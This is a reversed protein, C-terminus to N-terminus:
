GGAAVTHEGDPLVTVEGLDRPPSGPIRVRYTGPALRLADGNVVGTAVVEDGELVEYPVQLSAGMAAALQSGDNAEVYRGNGARAWAEFEEKLRQEDIAFGVINVRVDFGAQHLDRIAAAPDGECTEEGDTVLVVVVPGRVGALDQRVQALSAAIPTRALNMAQIGGITSAAAGPELPTLPIELDTRCSDVERHGFVRLAFPTGAPVVGRVLSSLAERAIEIRRRGELHQLMSGSADLIVEVAGSGPGPVATTPAVVRLTGPVEGPTVQIPTSALVQRTRGTMYRLEHPGPDLPAEIVVPSGGRTYAYDEYERPDAGAPVITVYDGPNDPGTWAVELESGGPASAPGSVTASNPLVVLDASGIVAWSQGTHYRIVYRGPQEPVRMAIPSGRSTYVYDGYTREGAGAPDISIFDRVADPGQWEVRIESGATAEAPATLMASVSGVALPTGGLVRYSSALHYRVVYDGAQDPARITVPSERAYEYAGYRRDGAGAPDISIFDREHGPGQWAITVEAGADVPALPEFTASADVVELPRSALVAYGSSGSHYRILYSGPLDPAALTAPQDHNAYVYRGYAREPAGATDISLFERGASPGTWRLEVPAGVVVRDPATIAASQASAPAASGLAIGVALVTVAGLPPV